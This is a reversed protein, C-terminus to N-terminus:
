SKKTGRKKTWQNCNNSKEILYDVENREIKDHIEMMKKRAPLLQWNRCRQYLRWNDRSQSTLALLSKPISSTHKLLASQMVSCQTTFPLLRYCVKCQLQVQLSSNLQCSRLSIREIKALLFISSSSSMPQFTNLKIRSQM